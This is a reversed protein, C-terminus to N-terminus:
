YGIIWFIREEDVCRDVLNIMEKNLQRLKELYEQWNDLWKPDSKEAEALFIKGLFINNIFELFQEQNEIKSLNFLNKVLENRLVIIKRTNYKTPEFYEYLENSKEFCHSFLNFVESGVYSSEESLKQCNSDDGTINFEVFNLQDIGFFGLKM